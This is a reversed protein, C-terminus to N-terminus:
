FKSLFHVLEIRNLSAKQKIEEPLSYDNCEFYNFLLKTHQENVESMSICYDINQIQKHFRKTKPHVWVSFPRVGLAAATIGVHLKTTVIYPTDKILEIMNKYGQYPCIEYPIESEDLIKFIKLYNEDSYDVGYNDSIFCLKRKISKNKLVDILIKVFDAYKQPMKIIGQLHLLIKNNDLHKLGSEDALTLVADAALIVHKVGRERLFELSEDNRVVVVKARKAIYITIKRFWNISLPGFEVGIIAYPVRFIIALLGVILHRRFNQRAWKKKNQPQEGFYGGGCFVLCKSKILNMIGTTGEPLEYTKSKDALPLNIIANPVADKIWKAFIAILLIDGYNNGFYTGHLSIIPRKM